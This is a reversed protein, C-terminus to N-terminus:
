TPSHSRAIMRYAFQPGETQKGFGEKHLSDKVVYDM